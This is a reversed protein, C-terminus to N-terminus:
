GNASEYVKNEATMSEAMNSHISGSAPKPEPKAVKFSVLFVTGVGVQTRFSIQGGFDEIIKKVIGMGLGTGKEPPKTTFFADFIRPQIEEPIGGGNDEIEVYAWEDREYIRVTIKGEGTVTHEDIADRANSILNVFVQQLRNVGALVLGTHSDFEKFVKIQHM